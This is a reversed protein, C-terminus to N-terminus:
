FRFDVKVEKKKDEVNRSENRTSFSMDVWDVGDNPISNVVTCLTLSANVSAEECFYFLNKKKLSQNNEEERERPIIKKNYWDNSFM